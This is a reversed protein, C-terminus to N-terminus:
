IKWPKTIKLYLILANLILHCKTIAIVHRCFYFSDNAVSLDTPNCTCNCLSTKLQGANKCAFPTASVKLSMVKGQMRLDLLSIKRPNECFKPWGQTWHLDPSFDLLWFLPPPSDWYSNPRCSHNVWWFKCFQILFHKFINECNYSYSMYGM